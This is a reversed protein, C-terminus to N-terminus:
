SKAKEPEAEPAEATEEEPEPEPETQATAQFAAAFLAAFLGGGLATRGFFKWTEPWGTLGVTLAQFWGSLTKPYESLSLWAATNTVIYFLLAGFVGGITFKWLSTKASFQRGLWYVVAYACYNFLMFGGLANVQYQFINKLVDTVFVTGLALWWPFRRHFAGCCLALGYAPSVAYPMVDPWRSLAFAAVLLCALGIQRKEM